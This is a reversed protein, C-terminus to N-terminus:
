KLTFKENISWNARIDFTKPLYIINEAQKKEFYNLTDWKNNSNVDVIIRITYKGPPLNKYVLDTTKQIIDHQFVSLKDNLLEVIYNQQTDIKLKLNLEGYDEIRKTSFKFQLSDNTNEFIDFIAKPDINLQYQVSPKKDFLLQFKNKQENLYIEFAVSLSDSTTLQIKNIDVNNIPINSSFSITDRYGLTQIFHEKIHLSDRKKSHIKVFFDTLKENEKIKVILTDDQVNKYWINITDKTLDNSKQFAISNGKKDTLDAIEANWDGEYGIIIHNQNLEIPKKISFHTKEKGITLHVVSDNPLEIPEELFGIEDEKSNYLMNGSKDKLAIVAYKGTKLNSIEYNISDSSNTIYDPKRKYIISDNYNEDISYLLISANFDTKPKYADKYTGKLKLSDIFSGTSFLYKFQKFVNGESNDVISNGFNFTYTTNEKLTDKLKIEIYKGAFGLPTIEPQNKMPPSIVLQKNLDKFKIYEDFNIRIKNANFNVTESTPVANILKPPTEDKPGGTPTGIRACSVVITLFYLFYLYKKKM